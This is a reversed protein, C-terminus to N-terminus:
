PQSGALGLGCRCPGATGALSAFAGAAGLGGFGGAAVADVRAEAGERDEVGAREEAAARTGRRPRSSRRSLSLRRRSRLGGNCLGTTYTGNLTTILVCPCLTAKTLLGTPQTFHLSFGTFTLSLLRMMGLTPLM